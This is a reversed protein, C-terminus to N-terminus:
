NHQKSVVLVPSTNDLVLVETEVSSTRREPFIRTFYLEALPKGRLRAKETAM